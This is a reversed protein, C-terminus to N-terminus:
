FSQVAKKNKFCKMKFTFHKQMNWGNLMMNAAPENFYLM